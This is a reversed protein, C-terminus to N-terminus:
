FLLRRYSTTGGISWFTIRLHYALVLFVFAHWVGDLFQFPLSLANKTLDVLWPIKTGPGNSRGRSVIGIFWVGLLRIVSLLPPLLTNLRICPFQLSPTFKHNVLFPYKPINRFM